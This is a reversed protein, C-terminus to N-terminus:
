VIVNSSKEFEVCKKKIKLKYCNKFNESSDSIIKCGNMSYMPDNQKEPVFKLFLWGLCYCNRLTSLKTFIPNLVKRPHENNLVISDYEPLKTISLSIM